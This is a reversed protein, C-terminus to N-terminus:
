FQAYLFPSYTSNVLFILDVVLLLPIGATQAVQYWRFDGYKEGIRKALPTCLVIGALVLFVTRADLFYSVRFFQDPSTGIGVLNGFYSITQTMGEARFIVWGLMVILVTIAILLAQPLKDKLHWRNTFRELIMFFGHWAGWIIFHLSAGHWLGSLLFVIALNVYVNGRRSGGLPIYLYDRLWTCLTIHWRRWFDGIGRALYPYNFNEPLRFGFLAALGIAMDTYGSFDLFLQLSYLVMGLWATPTDIGTTQMQFIADVQVGLLDAIIVKKALGMVFRRAGYALNDLSVTRGKLDSEMEGYRTIPGQIIKPFFSIWLAVQLLNKSAQTTGRYVDVLYSIVSFTFFSIGLPALPSDLPFGIHTLREFTTGIFGLYKYFILLGVNAVIGLVLLPKAKISSAHQIFLAMIYNFLILAIFLPVYQTGTWAFFLLSIVLLVFNRLAAKYRPVLIPILNYVVLTVPLFACLFVVSNFTM